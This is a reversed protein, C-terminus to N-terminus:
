SANDMLARHFELNDLMQKIEVLEEVTPCQHPQDQNSSTGPGMSTAPRIRERQYYLTPTATAPPKADHALTAYPEKTCIAEDQISRIDEQLMSSTAYPRLTATRSASQVPAEHEPQEHDRCPQVGEQLMASAMYPGPSATHPVPQASGGYNPQTLEMLPRVIIRNGRSANTQTIKFSSTSTGEDENWLYDVHVLIFHEDFVHYYYSVIGLRQDNEITLHRAMKLYKIDLPRLGSAEVEGELYVGLYKTILTTIGKVVIVRNKSKDDVVMSLHDHIFHGINPQWVWSTNNMQQLCFIDRELVEYSSEGNSFISNALVIQAYRLPDQLIYRSDIPHDGNEKLTIKKWNDRRCSTKRTM